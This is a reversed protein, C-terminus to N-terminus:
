VSSLCIYMGPSAPRFTFSDSSNIARRDLLDNFTGGGIKCALIGHKYNKVVILSILEMKINEIRHYKQLM